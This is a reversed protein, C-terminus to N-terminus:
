SVISCAKTAWREAGYVAKLAGFEVPDGLATGTGHAEVYSVKVPPSPVPLFLLRKLFFFSTSCSM